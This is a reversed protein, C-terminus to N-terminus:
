DIQVAGGSGLMELIKGPNKPLLQSEDTCFERM